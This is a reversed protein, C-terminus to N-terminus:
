KETFKATNAKEMEKGVKILKTGFEAVSNSTGM